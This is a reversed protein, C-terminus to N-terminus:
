GARASRRRRLGQPPGARRPLSWAPCARGQIPEPWRMRLRPARGTARAGTARGARRPKPRQRPAPPWPAGARGSSPPWQRRTRPRPKRVTGSHTAVIPEPFRGPRGLARPEEDVPPGGAAVPEVNALAHERWKEPITGRGPEVRHRERMRIGIVRASQTGHERAKAHAFEPLVPAPDGAGLVRQAGHLARAGTPAGEHSPLPEPEARREQGNEVGVPGEGEVLRRGKPLVLLREYQAEVPAAERQQQRTVQASRALLVQKGRM